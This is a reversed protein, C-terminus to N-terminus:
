SLGRLIDAYIRSNFLYKFNFSDTKLFKTVTLFSTFGLATFTLTALYGTLVLGKVKHM